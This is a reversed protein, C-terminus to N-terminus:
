PKQPPEDRNGSSDDFAEQTLESGRKVLSRLHTVRSTARALEEEAVALAAAPLHSRLAANVLESREGTSINMEKSILLASEDPRFTWSKKRKRKETSTKRINKM